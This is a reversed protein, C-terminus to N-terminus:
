GAPSEGCLERLAIAVLAQQAAVATAAAHADADSLMERDACISRASRDRAAVCRCRRTRRRHLRHVTSWASRGLYAEVDADYAIGEHAVPVQRGRWPFAKVLALSPSRQVGTYILEGEAPSGPRHLGRASVRGDALPVIDCTTSGVDFVVAGGNPAYRGAFSALPMGIRQRPRPNPRRYTARCLRDTFASVWDPHSRRFRTSSRTWARPSRKFAIPTEGTMTM